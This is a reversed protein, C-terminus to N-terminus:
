RVEKKNVIMYSHINMSTFTVMLYEQKKIIAFYKPQAFAINSISSAFWETACEM